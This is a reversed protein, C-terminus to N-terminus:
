EDIKVKQLIQKLGDKLNDVTKNKIVIWNDFLGNRMDEICESYEVCAGPIRYERNSQTLRSKLISESPPLILVGIWNYGQLEKCDPYEGPYDLIYIDKNTSEPLAFGYISSEFSCIATYANNDRRKKFEDFSISNRGVEGLYNRNKSVVDVSIINANIIACRFYNILTTKGSGSPGVIVIIM